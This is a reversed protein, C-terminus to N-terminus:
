LIHQGLGSLNGIIRVIVRLTIIIVFASPNATSCDIRAIMRLTIIFATIFNKIVYNRIIVRSTIIILRSISAFRGSTKTYDYMFYNYFELIVCKKYDCTLYNYYCGRYPPNRKNCDYM